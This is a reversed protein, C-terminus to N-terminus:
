NKITITISNLFEKRNKCQKSSTVAQQQKRITIDEQVKRFLSENKEQLLGTKKDSQNGKQVATKESTQSKEAQEKLSTQFQKTTTVSIFM